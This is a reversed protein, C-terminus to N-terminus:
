ARGPPWQRQDDYSSQCPVMESVKATLGESVYHPMVFPLCGLWRRDATGLVLFPNPVGRRSINFPGAQEGPALEFKEPFIEDGLVPIRGSKCATTSCRWILVPQRTDNVIRAEGADPIGTVPNTVFLVALLVAIVSSVILAFLNFGKKWSPVASDSPGVM